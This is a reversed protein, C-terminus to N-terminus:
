PYVRLLQDPTLTEAAGHPESGLLQILTVCSLGERLGRRGEGDETTRDTMSLM